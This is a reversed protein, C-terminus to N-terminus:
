EKMHKRAPPRPVVRLNERKEMPARKFLQLYPILCTVIKNEAKRLHEEFTTRAVGKKKAIMTLPIKRPLRYYGNAFSTLLADIQKETLDSFLADATLTLSGAIFGDFPVKRLIEITVGMQELRLLLKKLDEHRFMILRYYEWGREYVVPSVHLLDFADINKGISNDITCFCKRSILHIKSGDYSGNVIGGIRSLEKVIAPYEERNEFIIEIVEHERNCWVFMKLSPFERSINGFPCDHMAKFVIEFM